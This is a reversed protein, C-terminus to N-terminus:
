SHSFTVALATLPFVFSNTFLFNQVDDLALKLASVYIVANLGMIFMVCHFVFTNEAVIIYNNPQAKKEM